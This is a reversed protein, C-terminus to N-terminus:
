GRFIGEGVKFVLDFGCEDERVGVWCFLISKM